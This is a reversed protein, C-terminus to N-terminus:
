LSRENLIRAHVDRKAHQGIDSLDFHAGGAAFSGPTEDPKGYLAGGLGPHQGSPLVWRSSVEMTVVLGRGKTRLSLRRSRFATTMAAAVREWESREKGGELVRVAAIGGNADLTVEFVASGDMPADSPRAAEEALGVLPGAIDLGIAHDHALLEDRMSRDVGPAVNGGEPAEPTATGAGPRDPLGGGPVNGLFPNKGGMGLSLGSLSTSQSTPDFAFDSSSAPAPSPPEASDAPAGERPTRPHLRAEPVTEEREQTTPRETAEEAAPTATPEPTPTNEVDLDITAHEAEDAPAHSPGSRGLWAFAAAHLLVAAVLGVIESRTETRSPM